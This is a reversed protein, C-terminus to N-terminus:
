RASSTSMSSRGMSDMAASGSSSPGARLRAQDALAILLLLPALLILAVLQHVRGDARKVLGRSGQFPTECMAVIPVGSIDATRSQILDMVFIDPVFYISATTDRLEDLLDVVRQVQRMPLAIFILDIKRPNVHAALDSLGGLLYREQRCDWASPVATM